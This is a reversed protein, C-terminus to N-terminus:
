LQPDLNPSPPRCQPRPRWTRPCTDCWKMPRLGRYVTDKQFRNSREELLRLFEIFPIPNGSPKAAAPYWCDIEVPRYHLPDAATTNPRYLRSSDTTIIARYGVPYPPTVSPQAFSVQAFAPTLPFAGIFLLLIFRM